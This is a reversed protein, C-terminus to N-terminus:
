MYELRIQGHMILKANSVKDMIVIYEQRARLTRAFNWTDECDM